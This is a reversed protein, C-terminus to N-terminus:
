ERFRDRRGREHQSQLGSERAGSRCGRSLRQRELGVKRAGLRAMGRAGRKEQEDIGM